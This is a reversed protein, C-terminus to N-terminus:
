KNYKITKQLVSKIYEGSHIHCSWFLHRKRIRMKNCYLNQSYPDLLDM